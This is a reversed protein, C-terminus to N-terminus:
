LADNLIQNLLDINKQCIKCLFTQVGIYVIINDSSIWYGVLQKENFILPKYVPEQDIGMEAMKTNEIEIYIQKM